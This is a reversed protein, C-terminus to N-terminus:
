QAELAAQQLADHAEDSAKKAADYATQLKEQDDENFTQKVQDFLYKFAPLASGALNIASLVTSVTVM